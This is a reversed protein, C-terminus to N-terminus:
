LVYKGASIKEANASQRRAKGILPCKMKSLRKSLSRRSSSDSDVPEDNLDINAVQVHIPNVVLTSSSSLSARPSIDPPALPQPRAQPQALSDGDVLGKEVFSVEGADSEDRVRPIAIDVFYVRKSNRLASDDEISSTPGSIAPATVRRNPPNWTGVRAPLPVSKRRRTRLANTVTQTTMPVPTPMSSPLFWRFWMVFVSQSHFNTSDELHHVYLIHVLGFGLSSLAGASLTVWLNPTLPTADSNDTNNSDDSNPMHPMFDDLTSHYYRGACFVCRLM